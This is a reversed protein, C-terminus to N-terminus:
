FAPEGRRFDDSYRGYGRDDYRPGPPPYYGTPPYPYGGGGGRYDFHPPYGPGSHTPPYPYRDGDRYREGGRRDDRYDRQYNGGRDRDRGGAGGGAWRDDRGRREGIHPNDDKYVKVTNGEMPVSSLTKLAEELGQEDKFEVVGMHIGERTFVNTFTVDGAQRAWDKLDQWSVRPGLGEVVVRLDFRKVPKSKDRFGGAVEVKIQNGDLETGNLAEIAKDAEAQDDFFVYAYNPRREISVVSGYASFVEKLRAETSDEHLHAVYLRISM